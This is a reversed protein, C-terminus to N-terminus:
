DNLTKVRNFIPIMGRSSFSHANSTFFFLPFIILVILRQYNSHNTKSLKQFSRCSARLFIDNPSFESLDMGRAANTASSHCGASVRVARCNVARARMKNYRM